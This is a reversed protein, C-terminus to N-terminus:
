GMKLVDQKPHNLKKKILSVKEASTCDWCPHFVWDGNHNFYDSDYLQVIKTYLFEVKDFEEHIANQEWNRTNHWLLNPTNIVNEIFQITYKNKEIFIAGTNVHILTKELGDCCIHISKDEKGKKLDLVNKEKDVVVADGDLLFIQEYGKAFLYKISYMKNWAPARDHKFISRGLVELNKHLIYDFGIKDAYEANHPRTVNILDEYNNCISQLVAKKNSM